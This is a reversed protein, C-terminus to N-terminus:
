PDGCPDVLDISADLVASERSLEFVYQGELERVGTNECHNRRRDGDQDLHVTVTYTGPM